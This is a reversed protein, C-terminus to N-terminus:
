CCLPCGKMKIGRLRRDIRHHLESFRDIQESFRYRFQFFCRVGLRLVGIGRVFASGKRDRHRMEAANIVAFDIHLRCKQDPQPRLSDCDRLSM